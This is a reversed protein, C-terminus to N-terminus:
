ESESLRHSHSQTTWWANERKPNLPTEAVVTAKTRKKLGMRTNKTATTERIRATITTEEGVVEAAEVIVEEVVIEVDVVDEENAQRHGLDRLGLM